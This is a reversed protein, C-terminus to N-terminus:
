PAGLVEATHRSLDAVTLMSTLSARARDSLDARALPREPELWAVARRHAEDSDPVFAVTSTITGLYLRPGDPTLVADGVRMRRVFRDLNGTWAAYTGNARGPFAQELRTRVTERPTDAGLPGVERWGLACYGDALWAAM